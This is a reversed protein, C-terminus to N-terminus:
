PSPPRAHPLAWLAISVATGIWLVIQQGRGGAGKRYAVYHAAVLPVVSVPM